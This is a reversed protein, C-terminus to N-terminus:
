RVTSVSAEILERLVALDVDTLRKIYLCSKGTRHKGLRELLAGRREFGDMIYLTLERKRPSFGVAFWSAERGNAYHYSREGFGVISSGWMSGTDGTIDSMLRRVERADDRKREDEASELFLDVDADTKHTKLEAM